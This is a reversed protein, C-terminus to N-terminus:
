KLIKEKYYNVQAVMHGINGEGAYIDMDFFNDNKDMWYLKNIEEILFVDEKLKGAFVELIYGSMNYDIDMLHSLVINDRGIGTEEFLERYASDLSEEGPEVKGGVLNYKGKYPEKERKCFLIKDGNKNYVLIVNYKKM